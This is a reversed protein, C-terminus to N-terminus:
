QRTSKVAGRGGGDYRVLDNRDKQNQHGYGRKLPTAGEGLVAEQTKQGM